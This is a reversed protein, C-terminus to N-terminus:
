TLFMNIKQIFCIYTIMLLLLKLEILIHNKNYFKLINNSYYFQKM